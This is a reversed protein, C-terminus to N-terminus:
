FLLPSPETPPKLPELLDPGNGKLPNVRWAKMGESPYTRVLELPVTSPDEKVYPTLWRDYNTPEILLPCRNHFPELVENPEVTVISFSELTQGTAHDKWWDWIGGFSFLRDDKLAVAWPQTPAKPKDPNKPEWEFFFEAPVLCRQKKFPERWAGGTQLNDSRANISSFTAKPTKSWRPVLGWKMMALEREGTEHSLRVIPQFSDPTINYSPAFHLGHDEWDRIRYHEAIYQKDGRRGYRGCM